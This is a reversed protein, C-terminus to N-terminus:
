IWSGLSHKVPSHIGSIGAPLAQSATQKTIHFAKYVSQTDQTLSMVAIVLELIIAPLIVAWVEIGGHGIGYYVANEYSHDKKLM